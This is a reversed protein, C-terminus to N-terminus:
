YKPQPSIGFENFPLVRLWAKGIIHDKPLAGWERSDLSANPQRNDGLMFFEDKGVTKTQNGLLKFNASSPIYSENLKFGSPHEKNKITVTGDKIIVTEGPLGIVRKIFNTCPNAPPLGSVFYVRDLVNKFKHKNVYDNCQTEPHQFVVVDGRKPSGLTYSLSEVLIYNNDQFNPEMSSGKVLFPDLVFFKIITVFLFILIITKSMEKIFLKTNDPNETKEVKEKEMLKKM